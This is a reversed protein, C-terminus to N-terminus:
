GYQDCHCVNDVKQSLLGAEPPKKRKWLLFLNPVFRTDMQLCRTFYKITYGCLPVSCIYFLLLVSRIDQKPGSEPIVTLNLFFFCPVSCQIFSVANPAPFPPNPGPFPEGIGTSVSLRDLSLFQITPLDASSDRVKSSESSM